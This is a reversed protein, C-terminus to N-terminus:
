KCWGIVGCAIRNGANGTKISENHIKEDYIEGLYNLGGIGLDDEKEHIVVSRGVINCKGSLKILRDIFIINVIGEVDAYINGLDGVHRNNKSDGIDGHLKNYPNFHNCLSKCNDRLDGYQHIHIGHYGESLGTINVTIQVYDFVEKFEIYGKINKNITNTLVCVAEM